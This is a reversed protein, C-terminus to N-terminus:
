RDALSSCQPYVEAAPVLAGLEAQTLVVLAGTWGLPAPGAPSGDALVKESLAGAGTRHADLWALWAAAREDQGDSAWAYAFLATEPTWSIGDDKWKQGPKIGGAGTTLLREARAAAARAGPPWQGLFAPSTMAVAADVASTRSLRPYGHPAFEAALVASLRDALATEGVARAGALLPAVTGLTLQKTSTEWYDPSPRVTERSGTGDPGIAAEVAAVSRERLRTFRAELTPRQDAPAADLVVGLAWLVWGSGDLQPARGDAVPTGDTHYRAEFTGDAHQVADLFDLVRAADELHDAVALAAATFSADRPWVYHWKAPAWAAVTGGRETGLGRLDALATDTMAAHDGVAAKGACLWRDPVEGRVHREVLAPREPDAPALAATTTGVAAALIVAATRLRATSRWPARRVSDPLGDSTPSASRGGTRARAM